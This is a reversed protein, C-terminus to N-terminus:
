MVGKPVCLTVDHLATRSKWWYGYNKWANEVHVALEKLEIKKMFSFFILIIFIFKNIFVDNSKLHLNSNNITTPISDIEDSM